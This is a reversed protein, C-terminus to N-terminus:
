EGFLREINASIENEITKAEANLSALAKNLSLIESKFEEETMGDNEVVVGVYRGANLSYDQDKCLQM